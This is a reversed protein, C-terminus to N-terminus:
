GTIKGNRIDTVRTYVPVGGEGKGYGTRYLSSPIAVSYM